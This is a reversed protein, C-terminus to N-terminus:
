TVIANFGCFVFFVCDLQFQGATEALGHCLVKDTDRACLIRPCNEIGNITFVHREKIEQDLALQFLANRMRQDLLIDRLDPEAVELPLVPLEHKQEKHCEEEWGNPHVERKWELVLVPLDGDDLEDATEDGVEVEDEEKTQSHHHGPVVGAADECRM